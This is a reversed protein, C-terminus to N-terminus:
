GVPISNSGELKRRNGIYESIETLRNSEKGDAKM